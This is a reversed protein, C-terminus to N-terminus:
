KNSSAEFLTRSVKRSRTGNQRQDHVGPAKGSKKGQSSDAAVGAPFPAACCDFYDVNISDDVSRNRAKMVMLTSHEVVLHDTADVQSSGLDSRTGLDM